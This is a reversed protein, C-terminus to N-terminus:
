PLGVLRITRRHGDVCGNGADDVGCIFPEEARVRAAARKSMATRQGPMQTVLAPLIWTEFAGTAVETRSPRGVNVPVNSSLM